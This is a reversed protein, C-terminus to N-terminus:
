DISDGVLVFKFSHLTAFTVKLHTAHMADSMIRSRAVTTTSPLLLV